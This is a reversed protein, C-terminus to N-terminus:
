EKVIIATNTSADWDVKADLSESIFRVPVLTRRNEIVAPVDLLTPEGDIYATNEGVTLEIRREGLTGTVKRLEPDWDVDAGLAEFIVRMPVLIRRNRNVPPQDFTLYRGNLLVKYEYGAGESIGADKMRFLSNKGALLRQYSVLALMAQETAMLDAEGGVLHRYSGDSLRFSSLADLPNYEQGNGGTKVFRNDKTPDIGLSTLALIVQAISETNEAGDTAWGNFGGTNTQASSLFALAKDIASKVENRDSYNSLAQLAAATVDPDATNGTLSFGAGQLERELISTLLLERTNQITASASQSIPYDLSDLALLAYIPGNIGQRKILELDSLKATLDYGAVGTPAKGVATLSLILRSYESYKNRTLEGKNERLVEEINKYYGDVFGEPLKKESRALGLVTWDGGVMGFTPTGITKVLYTGTEEIAQHVWEQDYSNTETGFSAAPMGAFLTLAILLSIIRRKAKM